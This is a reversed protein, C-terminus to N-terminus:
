SSFCIMNCDQLITNGCYRRRVSDCDQLAATSGGTLAAALYLADTLKKNHRAMHLSQGIDTKRAAAHGLEHAMYARDANPNIRIRVNKGDVLDTISAYEMPTAMAAIRNAFGPEVKNQILDIGSPKRGNGIEKVRKEYAQDLENLVASTPRKSPEQVTVDLKGPISLGFGLADGVLSM